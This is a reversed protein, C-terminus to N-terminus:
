RADGQDRDRQGLTERAHLYLEKGVGTGFYAPAVWLEDPKPTKNSLRYFGQVEGDAEAVFVDSLDAAGVKASNIWHQPYGWHRTAADVIEALVESEEARAKRIIM